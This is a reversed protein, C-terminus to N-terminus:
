GDTLEDLLTQLTRRMSIAEARLLALLEAGEEKGDATDEETDGRDVADRLKQLREQSRTVSRMLKQVGTVMLEPSLEGASILLEMSENIDPGEVTAQDRLRDVTARTEELKEQLAKNKRQLYNVEADMQAKQDPGFIEAREQLRSSEELASALDSQARELERLKRQHDPHASLDRQEVLRAELDTITQERGQLEHEVLRLKEALQDVERDKEFFKDMVEQRAEELDKLGTGMKLDYIERGQTEIETKLSGIVNEKDSIVERLLELERDQQRQGAMDQNFSDQLSEVHERAERLDYEMMDLERELEEIRRDKHVVKLKMETIAGASESRSSELAAHQGVLEALREDLGAAQDANDRSEERLQAVLEEAHELQTKVRTYREHWGDLEEDHRQERLELERCRLELERVRDQARELDEQHPSYSSEGIVDISFDSSQWDGLDSVQSEVAPEREPPSEAAAAVPPSEEHVDDPEAEAEMQDEHVDLEDLDLDLDDLDLDDPGEDGRQLTAALPADDLSATPAELGDQPEEGRLRADRAARKRDQEERRRREEERRAARRDDASQTSGSGGPDKEEEPSTSPPRRGQVKVRLDGFRVVDGASIEATTVTSNNVYTHNSSGLDRVVWRDDEPFIEAHARSVSPNDTRITSGPNRGITVTQGAELRVVIREGESDRYVLQLM